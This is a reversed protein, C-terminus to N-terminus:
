RGGPPRTVTVSLSNSASGSADILVLTETSSTANDYLPCANSIRLQGSTPTGTLTVEAPVQSTHSESRGTNYLRSLQVRGGSLDGSGDTYDFTIVLATSTLGDAARVCSGTTFNATLNSIAPVSSTSTGATPGTPATPVPAVVIPSSTRDCASTVSGVFGVLALVRVIRSSFVAVGRRGSRCADPWSVDDRKRRRASINSIEETRHAVARRFEGRIYHLLGKPRGVRCAKLGASCRIRSLLTRRSASRSRVIERPENRGM